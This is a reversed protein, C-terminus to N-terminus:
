LLRAALEQARGTQRRGPRVKPEEEALQQLVQQQGAVLREHRQKQAEELQLPPCSNLQPLPLAQPDSFHPPDWPTSYSTPVLPLQYLGQLFPMLLRKSLFM